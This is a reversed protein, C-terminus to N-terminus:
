GAFLVSDEGLFLCSLTKSAIIIIDHMMLKALMMRVFEFIRNGFIEAKVMEIKVIKSEVIETRSNEGVRSRVTEAQINGGARSRVAETRSNGEVRSRVIEAQINRRKSRGRKKGTRKRATGVRRGGSKRAHRM